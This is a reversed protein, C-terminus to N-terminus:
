LLKRNVIPQKKNDMVVFIYNHKTPDSYPCEKIKKPSFSRDLIYVNQSKDLKLTSIIKYRNSILVNNKKFFLENKEDCKADYIATIKNEAYTVCTTSILLLYLFFRM